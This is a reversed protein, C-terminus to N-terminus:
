QSAFLCCFFAVTRIAARCHEITGALSALISEACRMRMLSIPHQGGKHGNDASGNVLNGRLLSSHMLKDCRNKAVIHVICQLPARM